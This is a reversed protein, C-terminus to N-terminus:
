AHATVLWAAAPMRVGEVSQHKAFLDTLEATADAAVQEPQEALARGFALANLAFEAASPADSGRGGVLQEGRWLDFSVQQFGAQELIPRVYDPDDLAFPGPAHPVPAPLTLYRGVIEMMAGVWQNESPPAWVGLDMRGGPRLMTHLNAFARRPDPFFMSGFRSFLRDFPAGEPSATAADATLFRVNDAGARDARRQGEATLMPSIDLGLVSGGPAVRSGIELTTAGGGCGIDIVREGPSFGAHAMLADGAPSIMSEFRDVNALWREGMEGAWDEAEMEIPRKAEAM